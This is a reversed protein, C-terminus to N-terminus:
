LQAPLKGGAASVNRANPKGSIMTHEYMKIM